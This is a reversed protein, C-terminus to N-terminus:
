PNRELYLVSAILMLALAIFASTILITETMMPDNM